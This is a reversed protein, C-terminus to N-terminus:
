LNDTSPHSVFRFVKGNRISPRKDGDGGKQVKFAFLGERNSSLGPSFKLASPPISLFSSKPVDRPNICIGSIVETGPLENGPRSEGEVKAIGDELVFGASEFCSM